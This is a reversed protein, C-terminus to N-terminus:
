DGFRSSSSMWLKVKAWLVEVGEIWRDINIYTNHSKKRYICTFEWVYICIYIHVKKDNNAWCSMLHRALRVMHNWDVGWCWGYWVLYKDCKTQKNRNYIYINKPKKITNAQQKNFHTQAETNRELFYICNVLWFSRGGFFGSQIRFWIKFTKTTANVLRQVTPKVSAKYSLCFGFEVTSAVFSYVVKWM